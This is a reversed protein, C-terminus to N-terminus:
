EGDKTNEELIKIENFVSTVADLDGSKQIQKVITEESINKWHTDTQRIVFFALFLCFALFLRLKWFSRSKTDSDEPERSNRNRDFSTDRNNESFSERLHNIYEQRDDYHYAM